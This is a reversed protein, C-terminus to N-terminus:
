EWLLLQIGALWVRHGNFCLMRCLIASMSAQLDHGTLEKKGAGGGKVDLRIFLESPSLLM